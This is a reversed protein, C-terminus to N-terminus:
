LDERSSCEEGERAGGDSMMAGRQAGIKQAGLTAKGFPWLLKASRKIDEEEGAGQEDVMAGRQAGIQRRGARTAGDKPHDLCAPRGNANGPRHRRRYLYRPSM